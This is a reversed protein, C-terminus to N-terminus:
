RINSIFDGTTPTRKLINPLCTLLYIIPKLCTGFVTFIFSKDSIMHDNGCLVIYFHKRYLGFKLFVQYYNSFEVHYVLGTSLITDSFLVNRFFLNLTSSVSMSLFFERIYVPNLFYVFIRGIYIKYNGVWHNLLVM